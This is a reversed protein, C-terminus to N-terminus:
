DKIIFIIKLYTESELKIVLISKLFKTAINKYKTYNM